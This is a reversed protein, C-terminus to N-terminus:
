SLPTLIRGSASSESASDFAIKARVFSGEFGSDAVGRCLTLGALGGSRWVKETEAAKALGDVAAVGRGLKKAEM